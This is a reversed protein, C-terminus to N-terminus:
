SQSVVYVGATIIAVGVLWRWTLKERLVVASALVVATHALSRFPYVYSLNATSIVDFWLFVNMVYCLMGVFVFLNLFIRILVTPDRRIKGLAFGGSRRMGIKLLLQAAVSSVINIALLVFIRM